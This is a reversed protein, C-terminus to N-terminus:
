MPVVAYFILRIAISSDFDAELNIKIEGTTDMILNLAETAKSTTNSIYGGIFAIASSPRFGVPLTALTQWGRTLNPIDNSYPYVGNVYLIGNKKRYTVYSNLTLWGTDEATVKGNEVATVRGALATDDYVTDTFKAGAPVDAGVSHGDLATEVAGIRAVLATDDYPQVVVAPEAENPGEFVYVTGVTDGKEGRPGQEGQPGQIGQPGQPGVAGQEGTDGKDGKDGKEGQPGQPGTPGEPGQPGTDGKLGEKQEETLDEFTMTGDAGKPGQPGIPGEPGQVGQPGQPGTAGQPGEPGQPGQAGTKGDQGPEGQPGQPGVLSALWQGLSGTFGQEQALEFASKGDAGQVGSGDGGKREPDMGSFGVMYPLVEPRMFINYFDTVYQPESPVNGPETRTRIEYDDAM